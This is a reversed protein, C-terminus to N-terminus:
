GYLLAISLILSSSVLVLIWGGRTNLVKNPQPTEGSLGSVCASIIKLLACFFFFLSLGLVILEKMEFVSQDRVVKEIELRHIDVHLKSPIICCFHYFDDNQLVLDLRLKNNEQNLAEVQSM